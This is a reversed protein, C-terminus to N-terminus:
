TSGYRAYTGDAVAQYFGGHEAQRALQDCLDGQRPSRRTASTLAFFVVAFALRSM